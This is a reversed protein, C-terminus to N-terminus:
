KDDDDEGTEKAQKSRPAASMTEVKKTSGHYIHRTRKGEPTTVVFSHHADGGKSGTKEDSIKNGAKTHADKIKMLDSAMMAELFVDENKANYSADVKNFFAKKKEPTDGFQGAYSSGVSVTTNFEAWTLELMSKIKELLEDEKGEQYEDQILKILKELAIGDYNSLNAYIDGNSPAGWNPPLGAPPPQTM